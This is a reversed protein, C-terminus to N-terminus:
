QFIQGRKLIQQAQYWYYFAETNIKKLSNIPKWPDSLFIGRLNSIIKPQFRLQEISIGARSHLIWSCICAVKGAAIKSEDLKFKQQLLHNQISTVGERLLISNDTNIKENPDFQSLELGAQISDQLTQELSFASNRYVNERGHTYVYAEKIENLDTAENFLEGIDFLQKIIEMKRDPNYKIGITKPAFATLKEGLLSNITPVAVKIDHDPVIFPSGIILQDYRPLGKTDFIVDLLISDSKNEPHIQSSYLFKYHSKPTSDHSPREDNAYGEFPRQKSTKEVVTELEEKSAQAVIDIDISLRKIPNLRLLLSTGGKFQFSLDSEALYGLLQLAIIAKELLVPSSCHIDRAHHEIWAKTFCQDNIM